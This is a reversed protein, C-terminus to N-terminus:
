QNPKRSPSSESPLTVQIPAELRFTMAAESAIRVQEGKTAAEVATGAGAGAGAGIVAGKKGGTIGGIVAGIATGIGVTKATKAGQSAGTQTFTNSEVVYSQGGVFLRDLQVRVESTGKINGASKVDVLKVFVDAGKPIVTESDVVVPSAISAKFAQGVHDTDSNISDIMRVNVLTGSPLVIKRIVPEPKVPAPPPPLEIPANRAAQQPMPEPNSTVPQSPAPSSAVPPLPKNVPKLAPKSTSKSASARKEPVAVPEPAPAPAVLPAQAQPQPAPAELQKKEPAASCAAVLLLSMILPYRKMLM